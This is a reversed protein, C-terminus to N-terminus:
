RMNENGVYSNCFGCEEIEITPDTKQCFQCMLRSKRIMMCMECFVRLMERREHTEDMILVIIESLLPQLGEVNEIKIVNGRIKHTYKSVASQSIGLIIAVEDQKMGHNEALEIAILAKVAPVVSKVAIECPVIL